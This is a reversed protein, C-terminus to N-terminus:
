DRRRTNGIHALEIDARDIARAKFIRVPSAPVFIYGAVRVHADLKAVTKVIASQNMDVVLSKYGGHKLGLLGLKGTKSHWRISAKLQKVKKLGTFV